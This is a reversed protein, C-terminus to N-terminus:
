IYLTLKIEPWKQERNVKSEVVFRVVPHRPWEWWMLHSIVRSRLPFVVARVTNSGRAQTVSAEWRVWYDGIGSLQGNWSTTVMVVDVTCNLFRHLRGCRKSSKCSRDNLQRWRSCKEEFVRLTIGLAHFYNCVFCFFATSYVADHFQFEFVYVICRNLNM